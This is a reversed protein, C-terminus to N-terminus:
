PVRRMTHLLPGPWSRSQPLLSPVLPPGHEVSARRFDLAYPLGREAVDRSSRGTVSPQSTTDCRPERNGRTGRHCLSSLVADHKLTVPTIFSKPSSLGRMYLPHITCIRVTVPAVVAQTCDANNAIRSWCDIGDLGPTGEAWVSQQEARGIGTGPSHLPHRHDSIALFRQLRQQGPRSASPGFQLRYSGLFGRLQIADVAPM